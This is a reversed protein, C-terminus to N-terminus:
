KQFYDWLLDVRKKGIVLEVTDKGAELINKESRYTKMLLEVTKKGIGPINELENKIAGKSRKDRHFSIGFRHVEDRIKRLLTLAPSQYSIKLSEKDNRFFIEEINKALGVVTFRKALGLSDISKLAASLQGKGGDIIVLQPLPKGEKLLRSYRRHVIEEMSAFDNIGKVSKINFRRYESKEPVGNKFCVMAAVPFSGQFNSNDFCEIHVPIEKLKLLKQLEALTSVASDQDKNNLLLVKKKRYENMFHGANSFAMELLKKKAGGGPVTTKFDSKLLKLEVPVIYEAATSEYKERLRMLISELIDKVSEDLKCDIQINETRTISGNRVMLYHIFAAEEFRIVACVDLDGLNPSVVVSRSQYKELQDIKHQVVAAKEFALLDIQKKLEDRLYQIVPAVNGRLMNRVQTLEENYEQETQLGTCPGKCNGIHYELCVKYKKKKIEKESLNLRCSRLPIHQRILNLLERVRGASSFPGIYESGDNIKKRTLFVRPFAEKKIVVYPYTKDDKLEINFVPKNEKILTNELLLADHETAVITYDIKTIRRVLEDTKYNNHEKLFYSSIRKRLNKAKGVYLLRSGADYYKYIGPDSPISSVLSQFTQKNM